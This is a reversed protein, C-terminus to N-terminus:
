LEDAADSTYLLCDRARAGGRCLEAVPLELVAAQLLLLLLKENDESAGLDFIVIELYLLEEARLAM